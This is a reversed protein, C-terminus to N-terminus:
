YVMAYCVMYAVVYVVLHLGFLACLIFCADRLSVSLCVSFLPIVTGTGTFFSRPIM